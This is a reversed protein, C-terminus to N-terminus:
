QGTWNLKRYRKLYDILCVTAVGQGCGWDTIEFPSDLEKFPFDSLIKEMKGKHMRGYAAMYCALEDDNDYVKVGHETLIWPTQRYQAPVCEESVRIFDDIGPNELKSVMSRYDTRRM